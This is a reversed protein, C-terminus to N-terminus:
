FRNDEDSVDEAWRIIAELPIDYHVVPQLQERRKAENALVTAPSCVLYINREPLTVVQLCYQEGKERAVKWENETISVRSGTKVGKVEVYYTVGHGTIELDYGLLPNASVDKVNYGQKEWWERARQMAEEAVQYPSVSSEQDAPVPEEGISITLSRARDGATSEQRSTQPTMAPPGSVGTASTILIAQQDAGELQVARLRGSVGTNLATPALREDLPPSSEMEDPAPETGPGTAEEGTSIPVMELLDTLHVDREREWFRLTEKLRDPEEVQDWIDKIFERLNPVKLEQELANGIDRALNNVANESLYLRRNDRDLYSTVQEPDSVWYGIHYRVEIEKVRQIEPAPIDQRAFGLVLPWVRNIRSTWEPQPLPVGSYRVEPQAASVRGAGIREALRELDNLVWWPSSSERFLRAIHERDRLYIRSAKEWRIENGVSAPWCQENRLREQLEVPIKEWVEDLASALKQIKNLDPHETQEAMRLLARALHDPRPSEPIQLINCFFRRYDNWSESVEPIMGARDRWCVEDSRFWGASPILILPHDQFKQRIKSAEREQSQLWEYVPRVAEMECVNQRSLETLYNLVDEVAATVHIGLHQALKSGQRIGVKEHVYRFAPGLVKKLDPHFLQSPIAPEGQDDPLWPTTQLRQLWLAPRVYLTYWWGYSDTYYHHYELKDLAWDPETQLLGEITAWFARAADPNGEQRISQFAQEFGDINREFIRFRKAHPPLRNPNGMRTFTERDAVWKKIEWWFYIDDTSLDSIRPLRAVGLAELFEGWQDRNDKPRAYDGAVFPRGGALRFYEVVEEQGGLEPPLYMQAPTCYEGTQTRLFPLSSWTRLASKRLEGQKWLTFLMRVHEQNESASPPTGEGYVAQFFHELARHVEFEKVGLEWLARATNLDQVLSHKVTPFYQSYPQLIEPLPELPMLAEGPRVCRGDHLRVIPLQASQTRLKEHGALYQYLQGLWEDSRAAFWSADRTQLWPLIHPPEVSNVGLSKVVERAEGERLEPHVWHARPNGTVERLDDTDLLAYLERTHALYVDGRSYFGGDDGHFYLGEALTRRLAGVAPSFLNNDTEKEPFISWMPPTFRGLRKFLEPVQILMQEMKTLAWRTLLDDERLRDRDVTTAFRGSIHFKLGTRYGTPLRAFCRGELSSPRNGGEDMQIAMSFTQRRAEPNNSLINEWRQAGEADGEDKLHTAIKQVVEEPIAVQWDLRLWRSEEAATEARYEKRFGISVESLTGWDGEQLIQFQARYAARAAPSEWQIEQLARMFLLIEALRQDFVSAIRQPDLRPADAPLWFITKGSHFLEWAEPPPADVADVPYPDLAHDLWFAYPYSLVCPKQTVLLVSKFGIGFYGISRADKASILLGSISRVDKESFPLGDNWVLLGGDYLRFCLSRAGADEANQALELVIDRVTARLDRGFTRVIAQRETGWRKENRARIETYLNAFNQAEEKM